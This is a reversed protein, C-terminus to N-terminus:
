TYIAAKIVKIFKILNSNILFIKRPVRIYLKLMRKFNLYFRIFAFAQIRKLPKGCVAEYYTNRGYYFGSYRFDQAFDPYESRTIDYLETKKQPTVVFFAAFCLPSSCAFQITKRIQYYTEGPFGLM